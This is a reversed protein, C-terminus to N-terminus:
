ECVVDSFMALQRRRCNKIDLLEVDFVEFQKSSFFTSPGVPPGLGPPVVIRRKGGKKMGKIGEEFGPIMGNIGLRTEAPRNQRYSSDIVAGSENFGVYHFIVQQGDRPLDGEGVSIEDYILGTPTVRYSEDVVVTVNYGDRVFGPFEGKVGNQFQIRKNTDLLKKAQVSLREEAMSSALVYTEDDGESALRGQADEVRLSDDARVKRVMWFSASMTLAFRRTSEFPMSRHSKKEATSLKGETGMGNGRFMSTKM